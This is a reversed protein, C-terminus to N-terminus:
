AIAEAASPLEETSPLPVLEPAGTGSRVFRGLFRESREPFDLRTHTGRSEERRTAADVLISAVAVLNRLEMADPATSALAASRARLRVLAASADALSSAERLVGACVTMEHQLETRLSAPSAEGHDTADPVAVAAPPRITLDVGRLVGTESPGDRGDVIAEIARPGFVMGDLLSNSALRNAGHVGSCAAEGCAWLGPLTTAGYLDACVGGSLYHAAPAVPLWDNEPDLGVAQSARWITPFRTAFGSIATADLWLHDVGRERLRRTIARAV